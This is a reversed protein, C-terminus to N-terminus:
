FVRRPPEIEPKLTDTMGRVTFFEFVGARLDAINRSPDSFRQQLKEFGLVDRYNDIWHVVSMDIEHWRDRYIADLKFGRSIPGEGTIRDFEYPNLDEVTDIINQIDAALNDGGHEIQYKTFTGEYSGKLEEIIEKNKRLLRERAALVSALPSYDKEDKDKAGVVKAGYENLASNMNNLVVFNRYLLNLKYARPMEKGRFDIGKGYTDKLKPNDQFIQELELAEQTTFRPARETSLIIRDICKGLPRSLFYDKPELDSGKLGFLGMLRAQFPGGRESTTYAEVSHRKSLHYVSELFNRQETHRTLWDTNGLATVSVMRLREAEESTIAKNKVLSSIFEISQGYFRGVIKRRTKKIQGRIDAMEKTEQQGHDLAKSSAAKLHGRLKAIDPHDEEIDHELSSIIMAVDLSLPVKYRESAEKSIEIYEMVFDITHEQYPGGMLRSEGKHLDRSRWDAFRMLEMEGSSFMGSYPKFFSMDVISGLEHGFSTTAVYRMMDELRKAM